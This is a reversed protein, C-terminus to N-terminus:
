SCSDNTLKHQSVPKRTILNITKTTSSKQFYSSQGVPFHVQSPLSSIAQNFDQELTIFMITCKNYLYTTTDKSKLRPLRCHSLICIVLPTMAVLM